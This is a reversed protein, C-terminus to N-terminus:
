EERWTMNANAMLNEVFPRLDWASFWYVIDDFISEYGYLDVLEYLTDRVSDIPLEEKNEEVGDDIFVLSGQVKKKNKCNCSKSLIKM